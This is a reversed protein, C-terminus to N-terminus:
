LGVLRQYTEGGAPLLPRGAAEVWAHAGFRAGPRVGIVLSSEMGRRALLRTLVLSQILCRSDVPLVRLVRGVASGLGVAELEAEGGMTGRDNGGATKRLARLTSRLDGSRMLWRARAYAAAIEVALRAKQPISLRGPRTAATL